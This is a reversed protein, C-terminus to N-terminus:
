HVTQRNNSLEVLQRTVEDKFREYFESGGELFIVRALSPACQDLLWRQTNTQVRESPLKVPTAAMVRRWERWAPFDAYAVVLSRFDTGRVIERAAKNARSRKVRLEIRTHDADTGMEAAKDYICLYIESSMEGVYQTYGVQRPDDNRRSTKARTKCRGYKLERTAHKPKLNFGIADIAMDLRTFSFEAATLYKVLEICDMPCNDCADGSWTLHSGMEPRGPHVDLRRGDEYVTGVAYGNLPRSEVREQTLISPVNIATRSKFTGEIWHLKQSSFVNQQKEDNQPLFEANQSPKSGRTVLVPTTKKVDASNTM